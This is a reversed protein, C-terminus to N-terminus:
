DSQGSAPLHQFEPGLMNEDPSLSRGINRERELDDVIFGHKRAWQGNNEIREHCKRHVYIYNFIQSGIRRSVHHRDMQHRFGRRECVPCEQIHHDKAAREFYEDRLRKAKTPM